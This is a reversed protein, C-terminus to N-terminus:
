WLPVLLSILLLCCHKMPSEGRVSDGCESSSPSGRNSGSREDKNCAHETPEIDGTKDVVAARSTRNNEVMYACSCTKGAPLGKGCSSLRKPRAGM